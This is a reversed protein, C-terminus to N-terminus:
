PGANERSTTSFKFHVCKYVGGPRALVSPCRHRPFRVRSTQQQHRRPANTPASSVQCRWPHPAFRHAIRLELVGKRARRILGFIEEPSDYIHDGRFLGVKRVRPICTANIKPAIARFAQQLHCLLSEPGVCYVRQWILDLPPRNILTLVRM